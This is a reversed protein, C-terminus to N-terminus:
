LMEEEIVEEDEAGADESDAGEDEELVMAEQPQGESEGDADGVEELGEIGDAEKAERDM